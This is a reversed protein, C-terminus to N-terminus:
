VRTEDEEGEIGWQVIKDVFTPRAAASFEEIPRLRFGLLHQALESALPPPDDLTTQSSSVQEEPPITPPAPELEVDYSSPDAAISHNAPPMPVDGDLDYNRMDDVAVPM